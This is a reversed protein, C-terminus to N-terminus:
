LDAFMIPVTGGNGIYKEINNIDPKKFVNFISCNLM